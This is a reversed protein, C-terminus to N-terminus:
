RGIHVELPHAICQAKHRLMADWDAVSGVQGSKLWAFGAYYTLSGDRPSTSILLQSQDPRPSRHVFARSVRAPDLVIGEGVFSDDMPEWHRFWGEKEYLAPEGKGDHLTIGLTYNPPAQAANLRVEFCSFNSGLDLSIRKTEAIGYPSWPAYDLEFVTRIPGTALTRYHIFNKGALLTDNGWVGAGGTGRSTGVHYPDYGEGHDIHYYGATETNRTYWHHIVPYSVRKLWLDIGSSLTGGPQKAEVLRQAEPGYTRFAVRDNEWAYDDIREPVFRSFTTRESQPQRGAGNKDRVLAFTKQADAKIDVQFILEDPQGDLDYDLWQRLVPQGTAVEELLVKEPDFGGRLVKLDGPAIGVTEASRDIALPNRVTIMQRASGCSNLLSLVSLLVLYFAPPYFTRM